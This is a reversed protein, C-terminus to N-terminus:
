LNKLLRVSKCSFLGLIVITYAHGNVLGLKKLDQIDDSISGACMIHKKQESRVLKRWLNDLLTSDAAIEAETMEYHYTPAGSIARLVENPFGGEIAKYSGYM